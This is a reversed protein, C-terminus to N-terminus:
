ILWETSEIFKNCYDLSREITCNFERVPKDEKTWNYYNIYIEKRIDMPWGLSGMNDINIDFRVM